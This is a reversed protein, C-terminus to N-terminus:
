GCMMSCALNLWVCVRVSLRVWRLSILAVAEAPVARAHPWVTRTPQGGARAVKAPGGARRAWRGSRLGVGCRQASVGRARAPGGRPEWVVRRRPRSGGRRHARRARAPHLLVRVPAADPRPLRDLHLVRRQVDRPQARRPRGRRGLAPAARAPPGGSAARAARVARAPAASQGHEDVISPALKHVLRRRSWWSAIGITSYTALQLVGGPKLSAALSALAHPVDPRPVHHLVGIAAALEFPPLGASPLALLDAVAFHVRRATEQPLVAHLRQHSFALTRPSLDVATIEVHEYSLLAQAVQHGSGAGAILMRHESSDEGHPWRFHRYQRRMREAISPARATGFVEAVHWKPYVTMDYFSRVAQCHIPTIVALREARRLRARPLVVQAELMAWVRALGAAKLAACIPEPERLRHEVSRLEALDQYMGVAALLALQCHQALNLSSSSNAGAFSTLTPLGGEIAGCAVAVANAEEPTEELCFDTFHAWLAIAAASELRTHWVGGSAVLAADEAVQVTSAARLPAVAHRHQQHHYASSSAAAGEHGDFAVTGGGAGNEAQKMLLSLLQKRAACVLPELEKTGFTRSGALASQM